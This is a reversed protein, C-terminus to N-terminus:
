EPKGMLAGLETQYKKVVEMVASIQDKGATMQVKTEEAIKVFLEPHESVVKMMKERQEKPVEAM